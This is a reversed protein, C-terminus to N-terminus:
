ESHEDSKKRLIASANDADMIWELIDGNQFGAQEIIDSTLQIYCEGTEPDEEVDLHYVQTEQADVSWDNPNPYEETSKVITHNM